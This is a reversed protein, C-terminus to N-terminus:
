RPVMVQFLSLKDPRARAPQGNNGVRHISPAAREAMARLYAADLSEVDALSAMVDPAAAFVADVLAQEKAASWLTLESDPRQCNVDLWRGVADSVIATIISDRDANALAVLIPPTDTTGRTRLAAIASRLAERREIALRLAETPPEWGAAVLRAEPTVPDTM